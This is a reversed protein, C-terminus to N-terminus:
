QLGDSIENLMWCHWLADFVGRHQQVQNVPSVKRCFATKLDSVNSIIKQQVKLSSKHSETKKARDLIHCCLRKRCLINLFESFCLSVDLSFPGILILSLGQVCQSWYSLSYMCKFICMFNTYAVTSKSTYLIWTSKKCNLTSLLFSM